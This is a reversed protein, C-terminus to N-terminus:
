RERIDRYTAQLLSKGIDLHRLTSDCELIPSMSKCDFITTGYSDIVGFGDNFCWYGFKPLKTSLINKSFLFEEHKIGMESLLTAALDMQSCFDDIIMPEKIAGGLWLMPIHHRQKSYYLTGEPYPYGHDAVLIVVMNEWAPSSKLRDIVRGVEHDTFAVANLEREDFREFPVDFPEHSSLTLWGALLPKRESQPTSTIEIVRNAFFEGVVDDAYGWKSTPADFKMDKQWCLEQWGTSYMYSAQDTFNLDGGYTFWTFYGAKTLSAAISPLTRSKSPYKMISMRTQAPYGNLIAVEGRDTRYSNAYLNEFWVGESKLTNLTPTVEGGRTDTFCRGFSELIILVIDPTPSNLIQSTNPEEERDGRLASLKEDLIEEEFFLYQPKMDEDEGLTSLLSFLPNTAAHNLLQNNSFYVKSVNAVAVSVGGRIALFTLAAVLLLAPLTLLRKPRSIPNIELRRIITLWTASLAAIHLVFLSIGKIYDSASLSAVAEKPSKLYLILSSDIRYGWYEYLGLDIAFISAAITAISITYIRLFARWRKPTLPLWISLIMM